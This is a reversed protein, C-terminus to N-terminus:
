CEASLISNGRQVNSTRSRPHYWSTNIDRSTNVGLINTGRSWVWGPDKELEPSFLAQSYLNPRGPLFRPIINIRNVKVKLKNCVGVHWSFMYM